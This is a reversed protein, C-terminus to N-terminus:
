KDMVLPSTFLPKPLQGPCSLAEGLPLLYVSGSLPGPLFIQHTLLQQQQSTTFCPSLVYYM